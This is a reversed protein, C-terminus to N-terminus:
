ATQRARAREAASQEREYCRPCIGHTAQDRLSSAIWQQGGGIAELRLWEEGVQLRECWACRVLVVRGENADRLTQALESIRRSETRLSRARRGAAVARRVLDEYQPV